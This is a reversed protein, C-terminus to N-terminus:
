SVDDPKREKKAKERIRAESKLEAVTKKQGRIKTRTIALLGRHKFSNKDLKKRQGKREKRGRWITVPTTRPARRKRENNRASSNELATDRGEKV